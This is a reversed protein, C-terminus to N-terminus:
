RKLMEKLLRAKKQAKLSFPSFVRFLSYEIFWIVSCSVCFINTVFVGSKKKFYYRAAAFCAKITKPKRETTTSGGHYHIIEADPYYVSVFNKSKQVRRCFEADEYYMFINEDLMGIEDILERRVWFFCGSLSDVVKFSNHDWYRM